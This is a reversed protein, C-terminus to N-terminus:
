KRRDRVVLTSIPSARLIPSAFDEYLWEGPAAVDHAGIVLLDHGGEQIAQLIEEVVLGQRVRVTGDIGMERMRAELERLHDAEPADSHIFDLLDEALEEQGKDTLGMQSIVHLVTLRAGLAKAIRAAHRFNTVGHRKGETCVLISAMAHPKGRALLVSCPSRKVVLLGILGSTLRDASGLRGVIVADAEHERAMEPVVYEVLGARGAIVVREPPLGLIAKALSLAKARSSPLLLTTTLLVDAGTARCYEALIKAPTHWHSSDDVNLLIRGRHAEPDRPETTM